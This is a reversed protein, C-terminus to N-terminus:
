DGFIIEIQVSSKIEAKTHLPGKTEQNWSLAHPKVGLGHTHHVVDPYKLM